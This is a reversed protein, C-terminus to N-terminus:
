SRAGPDFWTKHRPLTLILFAATFPLLWMVRAGYRAAPQSVGGCVLANLAIGILVFVAFVKLPPAVKGPWLLLATILVFSALYIAPHIIDAIRLWMQSRTLVGGDLVGLQAEPLGSMSKANRKVSASPITMKVSNMRLQTAANRALAHAIGFPRDALVQFFFARQENAVAKQDEPTMLRFSGLAPTREFIIHSVTMRYPDDSWTLAEHLACTALDARPCHDDLYALGPGDVILRATIHPTYTVEKRTVNKVAIEFAKREGIAILVLCAVFGAAVWRGWGQGSGLRLLAALIVFPLMLVAIGLHSPHLVVALAVLAFAVVWEAPRMQHGMAVVTAILILMIPAFIDPMVYAIYFPLSTTAAVLVPLTIMPMTGYGSPIVRGTVRVALWVALLLNALHFLAVGGLMDARWFGAVILAYVMSRSGDTTTDAKEGTAAGQGVADSGAGAEPLILSLATNGQKFYSGTDFYYLPGRNIMLVMLCIAVTVGLLVAPGLWRAAGDSTSQLRM